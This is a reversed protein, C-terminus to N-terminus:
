AAPDSRTRPHATRADLSPLPKPTRLQPLYAPAVCPPAPGRKTRPRATRPKTPPPSVLEVVRVLADTAPPAIGVTWSREALQQRLRPPLQNEVVLAQNPNPNPNPYPEPDPNPNPNPNPHPHPRPDPEPDRAGREAAAGGRACREDCEAPASRDAGTAACRAGRGGPLPGRGRRTARCAM